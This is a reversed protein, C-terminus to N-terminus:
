VIKKVRGIFREGKVGSFVQRGDYEVDTKPFPLRNIRDKDINHFTLFHSITKNTRLNNIKESKGNKILDIFSNYGHTKSFPCYLSTITDDSLKLYSQSPMSYIDIGSTYLLASVIENEGDYKIFTPYDLNKFIETKGFAFDRDYIQTILFDNSLEKDIGLYFNDKHFFKNFDQGSVVIDKDKVFDILDKDWGPKLKVNDCIMLTYESHSKNISNNKYSCPSKQLDWWISNYSLYEYEKFYNTRDVPSQDYLIINIKNTSKYLISDITDKLFKGKYSYIIVTIDNM